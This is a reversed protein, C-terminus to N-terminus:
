VSLRAMNFDNEHIIGPTQRFHNGAQGKAAALYMEQEPTPNLERIFNFSISLTDDSNEITWMKLLDVVSWHMM